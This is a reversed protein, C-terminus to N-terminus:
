SSCEELEKVEQRISETIYGSLILNELTAYKILDELNYDDVMLNNGKM